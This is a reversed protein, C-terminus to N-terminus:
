EAPQLMKEIKEKDIDIMVEDDIILTPIGIGGKEKVSDYIPNTDRIKLFRKM